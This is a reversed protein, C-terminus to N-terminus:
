NKKPAGWAGRFCGYSIGFLGCSVVKCGLPFAKFIAISSQQFKLACVPWLKEACKTLLPSRLGFVLVEGSEDWRFYIM